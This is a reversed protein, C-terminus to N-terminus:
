KDSRKTTRSKRADSSATEDPVPGDSGGSSDEGGLDATSDVTNVNPDEWLPQEIVDEVASRMAWRRASAFSLTVTDGAKYGPGGERSPDTDRIFRVTKM